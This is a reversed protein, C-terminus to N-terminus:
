ILNFNLLNLNLITDKVATFVYFFNESKLDTSNTFCHYKRRKSSIVNLFMHLIFNRAALPDSCPGRYEPFYDKLHSHKIKEELLDNKNFVLIISIDNFYEYSTITRLLELSERLCNRGDGGFSFQDYESIAVLYIIATVNDFLHLWKKRESLHCSIDTIHFEVKHYIFSHEDIANSPERLRLLDEDNPVYGDAAIRDLHTFFYKTSDLLNYERRHLYCKQIGSDTWLEKLAILYPLNLNLESNLNVYKILISNNFANQQIEFPIQLKDMAAIINKMAEFINRYITNIYSKRNCTGNTKDYFLRMQRIFTSKGSGRTGLLLLKIRRNYKRKYLQLEREVNRYIRMEESYLCNMKTRRILIKEEKLNLIKILTCM